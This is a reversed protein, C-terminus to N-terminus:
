AAPPTSPRSSAPVLPLRAGTRLRPRPDTPLQSPARSVRPAALNSGAALTIRPLVRVRIVIYAMAQEDALLPRRQRQHDPYFAASDVVVSFGQALISERSSSCSPMPCARGLEPLVGAAISPAYVLDKDLVVAGTAQGVACPWRARAAAPCGQWRSSSLSLPRLDAMKAAIDTATMFAEGVLIARVGAQQLRQADARTHM